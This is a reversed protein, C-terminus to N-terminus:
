PKEREEPGIVARIDDGVKQWDSRLADRDAKLGQALNHRYAPLDRQFAEAFLGFVSGMAEFFKTYRM